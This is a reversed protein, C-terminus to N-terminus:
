LGVVRRPHLDLEQAPDRDIRDRLRRLPPHAGVAVPRVGCCPSAAIHEIDIGFCCALREIAGFVPVPLALASAGVFRRLRSTPNVRTSSSMTMESIEIRAAIPSTCYRFETIDAFSAVSAVSRKRMRSAM